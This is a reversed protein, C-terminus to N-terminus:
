IHELLVLRRYSDCFIFGSGAVKKKGEAAEERFRM